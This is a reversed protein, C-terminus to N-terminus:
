LLANLGFIRGLITVLLRLRPEISIRDYARILFDSSGSDSARGVAYVHTAGIAIDFGASGFLGGSRHSRDDFLVRGRFLDYARVVFESEGFEEGSVGTVYAVEDSLAVASFSESVEEPPTTIHQWAVRGDAPHYARILSGQLSRGVGVVRHDRIEADVFIGPTSTDEWIQHGNTTNFAALFANAASTSGAVFVRGSRTTIATPTVGAREVEWQLTGTRAHYARVIMKRNGGIGSSGAVFIQDFDIAVAWAVDDITDGKSVQDEWLVRGTLPDYARILADLATIPAVSTNGGQGVVVVVFPGAALGQPFDDRGKNLTDHWLVNGTRSNYARVFIDSNDPVVSNYGAVFGINGLTATFVGTSIGTTLPVQDSWRVAGAGGYNLVGLDLGGTVSANGATIAMNGVTSVSRLLDPGGSFDKQQEWLFPSQGFLNPTFLLFFSVFRVLTKV